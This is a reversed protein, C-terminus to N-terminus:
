SPAVASRQNLAVARVKENEKAYHHGVIWGGMAGILAHHGAVHGAVAGKLSGAAHVTGVATLLALTAIATVVNPTNM